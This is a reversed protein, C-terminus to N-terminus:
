RSKLAAGGALDFWKVVRGADMIGGILFAPLAFPLMLLAWVGALTLQDGNVDHIVYILDLFKVAVFPGISLTLFVVGLIFGYPRFRTASEATDTPKRNIRARIFACREQIENELRAGGSADSKADLWYREKFLQRLTYNSFDVEATMLETAPAPYEMQLANATMSPSILLSYVLPHIFSRNTWRLRLLATKLFFLARKRVFGLVLFQGISCFLVARDGVFRASVHATQHARM